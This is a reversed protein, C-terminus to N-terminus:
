CRKSYFILLNNLEVLLWFSTTERFVFIRVSLYVYKSQKQLCFFLNKHTTAAACAASLCSSSLSKAKHKRHPIYVHIEVHVWKCFESAAVSAGLKFIDEWLADRLHDHHNDWDACSFDYTVCRLSTDRKLNSLFNISVSVVVHDSSGLSLFAVASCISTDSTLFHAFFALSHSNHDPIQAPFNVIYTLDNPISFNYWLEDPRDTGSSFTLLNKYLVNYVWQFKGLCLNKVREHHLSKDYLFWNM